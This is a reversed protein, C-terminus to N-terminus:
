GFVAKGFAEKLAKKLDEKAQGEVTFFPRAPINGRGFEHTTAKPDNVTMTLTMSTNNGSQSSSDDDSKGFKKKPSLAAGKLKGHFTLIKKGANPQKAKWKAYDANLPEWNSGGPTQQGEFGGKIEDLFVKSWAELAPKMAGVVQKEDFIGGKPLKNLKVTVDSM